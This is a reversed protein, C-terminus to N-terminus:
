WFSLKLSGADFCMLGQAAVPNRRMIELLGLTDLGRSFEDLEQKRSWLVEHEILTTVLAGACTGSM